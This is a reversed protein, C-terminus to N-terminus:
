KIADRLVSAFSELWVVTNEDVETDIFFEVALKAVHHITREDIRCQVTRLYTGVAETVDYEFTGPHEMGSKDAYAKVSALGVAWRATHVAAGVEGGYHNAEDDSLEVTALDNSKSFGQWLFASTLAVEHSDVTNPMTNNM